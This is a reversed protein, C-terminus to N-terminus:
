TPITFPLWLLDGLLYYYLAGLVLFPGYPIASGMVNSKGTALAWGIGILSGAVSSVLIIPFIAGPGLFAGLMALLKVDGGGLGVKGTMREYLWAFGFFIGFGLAAGALASLIGLGPVFHATVLCLLLGGLSLRNPIIRHDLDIFTIAVLLSIFPWDRVVLLWDWDFRVKAALFLFGTMLEVLPYRLSISLKCGRCRGRIAIYSLVPINEYWRIPRECRPCHSAPRVISRRLPLRLIVVNLFSGVLLGFVLALVNTYWVPLTEM